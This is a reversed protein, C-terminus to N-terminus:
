LWKKNNKLLFIAVWSIIGKEFLHNRLLKLMHPPDPIFYFKRTEDEPSPIFYHGSMLKADAVFEKNGLDFSAGLVKFGKVEM